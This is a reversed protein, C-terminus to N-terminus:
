QGLTRDMDELLKYVEIQSRLRFRANSSEFGVKITYAEQPLAKFTDEDTFDDGVALIFDWNAESIWHTAAKGKNVASSKVEVTKSGQLVQLEPNTTTLTRVANALESARISGWVPDSRRYHWVLSYEKEEIFSSPVMDTFLEFISRLDEKWDGSIEELKIWPKADDKIWMGHEAVLNIDGQFWRDLTEKDRGSILVVKSQKSLRHLLGLLEQNPQAKDPKETFATLTGDYDLLLLRRYGKVYRSILEQRAEGILRQTQHRARTEETQSIKELFDEMWRNVDYRQLRKQMAQNREVQEELPMTLAEKLADAV